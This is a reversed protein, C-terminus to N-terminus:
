HIHLHKHDQEMLKSHFLQVYDIHDRLEDGEYSPIIKYESTPYSDVTYPNIGNSTFFRDFIIIIKHTPAAFGAKRILELITM